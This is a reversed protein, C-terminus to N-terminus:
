HSRRQASIGIAATLAAAAFGLLYADKDRQVAQGLEPAQERVAAAGQVVADSAGSAAQAARESWQSAKSKIADATQALSEQAGRLQDAAASQADGALRATRAAIAAGAQAAPAAMPSPRRRGSRMLSYLGYGVLLSAVPPRHVIRWALGAGIAVVAVPNDAVRDKIDTFISEATDTLDRKLGGVVPGRLNALDEKVRHRAQAVDHELLDLEGSM